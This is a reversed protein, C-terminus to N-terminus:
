GKRVVRLIKTEFHPKKPMVGKSSFQQTAATVILLQSIMLTKVQAQACPIAPGAISDQQNQKYNGYVRRYSEM